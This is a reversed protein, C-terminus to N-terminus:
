GGTFLRGTIVYLERGSKETWIESYDFHLGDRKIVTVIDVNAGYAEKLTVTDNVYSGAEGGDGDLLLTGKKVFKAPESALGAFGCDFYGGKRFLYEPTDEFELDMYCHAGSGQYTWEGQGLWKGTLGDPRARVGAPIVAAEREAPIAPATFVRAPACVQPAAAEVAAAGAAAGLQALAPEQAAACAPLLAILSVFAIKRM